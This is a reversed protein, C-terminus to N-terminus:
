ERFGIIGMRSGTWSDKSMRLRVAKCSADCATAPLREAGTIIEERAGFCGQVDAIQDRVRRIALVAAALQCALEDLMREFQPHRPDAHQQAVVKIAGEGALVQKAVIRHEGAFERQKVPDFPEFPRRRGAVVM